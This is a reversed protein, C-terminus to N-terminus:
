EFLALVEDINYDIDFWKIDKNRKFWTIQRKAFRRTNKKIESIAFDLDYNGDFHNFLEKYGVTNLANQKRYHYLKEAEAILANEVMIDVRKNIRNYLLSRESNLGIYTCDFHRKQPNQNRIESMKKGESQLLIEISRILRHPNKHDMIKYYDPDLTQMEAQLKEIGYKQLDAQLRSRIEENKDPLKDLGKCAADIFLGSGGVLILVDKTKFLQNTLTLFDKEFDGVTYDDFISKHQIFHHKVSALEKENPVATGISMEKYFQRSDASIIETNFYSALKIALATKGSATPGVISIVKKSM